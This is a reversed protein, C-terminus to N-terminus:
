VICTVRQKYIFVTFGYEVRDHRLTVYPSLTLAFSLLEEPKFYNVEFDHKPNYSSLCSFAIAHKCHPFLAKIVEKATNTVGEVKLNFVGCLFIYDFDRKLRREVEIDFVRFDIDPYKKKALNVLKDNIDYGTYNVSFGREKLFVYFDGKGCGYDLIDAGNLNCEGDLMGEYHQAQGKSTWRLAEPRDGHFLLKDEFYKIVYEKSLEDM